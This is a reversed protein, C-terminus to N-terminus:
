FRFGTFISIIPTVQGDKVDRGHDRDRQGLSVGVGANMGIEWGGGGFGNVWSLDVSPALIPLGGDFQYLFNLGPGLLLSNCGDSSSRRLLARGGAGAAESGSFKGLLLGYFGEGVFTWHDAQGLTVQGRIGLQQGLMIQGTIWGLGNDGGAPTAAAPPPTQLAPAPVLTQPVPEQAGVPLCLLLLTCGVASGTRPRM